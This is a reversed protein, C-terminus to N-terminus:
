KSYGLLLGKYIKLMKKIAMRQAPTIIKVNYYHEGSFKVKATKANAIDILTQDTSPDYVSEDYWEWIMGDGNDREFEWDYTANTGNTNIIVQDIFLWDDAYYQLKFHLEPKPKIDDIYCYVGNANIYRPSSPDFLYKSESFEDGKKRSGKYLKKFEIPTVEIDKLAALEVRNPFLKDSDVKAREITNTLANDISSTDTTSTDTALSDANYKYSSSTSCRSFFLILLSNILLLFATKQM